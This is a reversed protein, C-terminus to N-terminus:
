RRRPGKPKSFKLRNVESPAARKELEESTDLKRVDIEDEDGVEMTEKLFINKSEFIGQIYNLLGQKNSAYIMRDKVKSGSPCSYIFAAKKPSFLYVCYQPQSTKNNTAKLSEILHGPSINERSSKLKVHEKEVDIDFIILKWTDEPNLSNVEKELASEIQFILTNGGNSEHMSPLAKKHDNYSTNEAVNTIDLSNLKDLVKESSTLPVEDDDDLSERFHEYCLENLTTWAFICSKRFNSTGLQMLLTNKTLAYLMKERIHADDPIFSIFALGELEKETKIRLVIYAPSPYNKGMYEKVSKFLEGVDPEVHQYSPVLSTNDPSIKIILADYDGKKFVDTLEESVSIGSQTSM